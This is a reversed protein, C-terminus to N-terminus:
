TRQRVAAVIPEMRNLEYDFCVYYTLGYQQRRELLTDVVRAPEGVLAHPSRDVVNPPVWGSPTCEEARAFIGFVLVSREPGGDSRESDHTAEDLLRLKREVAEVAFERPDLGGGPLSKPVLGFIDAVSAALRIMRPGGGGILLPVREQTPTPSAAYDNLRYHNGAFSVTGGQLVREILAVAEEFRDARIRPEDFGLGVADYEEKLWGAGIGLEIRGQSLVDMTAIEKALLAPHRFDNCYVYSGLRLTTTIAAATAILPTCALANAYHDAVLLTDFGSSEVRRVFSGWTAASYADTAVVGFRFAREGM